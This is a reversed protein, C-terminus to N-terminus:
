IALNIMRLDTERPLNTGFPRVTNLLQRGDPAHLVFNSAVQTPIITQLEDYFARLDGSQLHRSAALVQLIQHFGNIDADVAQMLARATAIMDRELSARERQYSQVILFGAVLVAPLICGVVLWGLWFPM